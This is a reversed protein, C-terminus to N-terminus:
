KGRIEELANKMQSHIIEGLEATNMDKYQQSEIVDLLRFQVVSKQRFIRKHIGNMGDIVCVVIPVGSKLAIKLSGNRLPLLEGTKSAYGEPFLGISTVDEKLMKIAKIITKAAERDNERDIPLCQMRHMARAVIPRTEYIDKKGIFSLHAEPFVSYIIVPDFDHQHNCVVLMRGENPLRETGKADVKVRVALLMYPIATKILFRFFESGKPPKNLNTTFIMIFIALTHLIIFGLTFGATLIIVLWWSYDQRLIDFFNNLFVTLAASIVIYIGLM